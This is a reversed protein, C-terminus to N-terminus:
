ALRSDSSDQPAVFGNKGSPRIDFREDIYGSYGHSASRNRAEDGLDALNEELFSNSFAFVLAAFGVYIITLFMCMISFAMSSREVARNAAFENDRDGRDEGERQYDRIQLLPSDLSLRFVLNAILSYM